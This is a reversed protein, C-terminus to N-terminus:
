YRRKNEAALQNQLEVIRAAYGTCKQLLERNKNREEELLSVNKNVQEILRDLDTVTLNSENLVRGREFDTSPRIEETNPKIEEHYEEYHRILDGFGAVCRGCIGCYYHKCIAGERIERIWKYQPHKRQFHHGLTGLKQGCVPCQKM